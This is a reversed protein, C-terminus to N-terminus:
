VFSRLCDITLCGSDNGQLQSEVSLTNCSDLVVNTVHDRSSIGCIRRLCNMQFVALPNTPQKVIAREVTCCCQCSSAKHATLGDHKSDDYCSSLWINANIDEFTAAAKGATGM